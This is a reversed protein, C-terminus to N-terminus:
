ILELARETGASVCLFYQVLLYCNNTKLNIMFEKGPCSREAAKEELLIQGEFELDEIDQNGM